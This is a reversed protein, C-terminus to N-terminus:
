FAMIIVIVMQAVNALTYHAVANVFIKIMDTVEAALFSYFAGDVLVPIVGAVYASYNNDFAKIIVVIMNTVITLNGNETALILVAIVIAVNAFKLKCTTFIRVFVVKAVDTALSKAFAFFSPDGVVNAFVATVGKCFTIVIIFVM